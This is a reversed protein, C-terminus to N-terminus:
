AVFVQDTDVGHKEHAADKENDHDRAIALWASAHWHFCTSCRIVSHSATYVTLVLM